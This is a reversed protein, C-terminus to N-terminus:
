RRKTSRYSHQVLAVVDGDDDREFIVPEGLSGDDRKRRFTDGDEHVWTEVGEILDSGFVPISFLEGDGLGVYRDWDYNEVAYYGEYDTLDVPPAKSEGDDKAAGDYQDDEDGHVDTVQANVFDYVVRVFAGPSVDNATVMMVYATRDPLRMVFETRAGPCYGGHGWVTEDGYRRTAFALGWAPEDFDPGVWHVRQMQKLTTAELIEAGGKARLRFNWAAFRAMDNVSSAIGAAPAYARFEHQEVPKRVGKADRVYYGRAFGTGVRDFPMDTTTNDMGLPTLITADVYDGWPQGSVEAIADGVLAMGLNSYQWHDYPAYLQDHRRTSDRLMASDPFETGAWFDEVGERPLGSVHSLINRLTAPEEAGTEDEPAVDGIYDYIPTDLDLRGADVLAMAAVGNFLKSVSCISFVTDDTVPRKTRLSQVGYQHSWVLDQDHVIGFAAGPVAEKTLQADIIAAVARLRSDLQEQATQAGAASAVTALAAGVLMGFTKM